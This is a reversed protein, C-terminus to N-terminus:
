HNVETIACLETGCHHSLKEREFRRDVFRVISVKRATFRNPLVFPSSWGNRSTIHRNMWWRRFYAETLRRLPVDVSCGKWLM